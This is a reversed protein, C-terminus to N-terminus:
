EDDGYEETQADRSLLLSGILEEYTLGRVVEEDISHANDEYLRELCFAIGHAASISPRNEELAERSYGKLNMEGKAM